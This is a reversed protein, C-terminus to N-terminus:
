FEIDDLLSTASSTGVTKELNDLEKAARKEEAAKMTSYVGDLICKTYVLSSLIGPMISLYSDVWAQDRNKPMKGGRLAAIRTRLVACASEIRKQMDLIAPLTVKLQPTKWVPKRKAKPAETGNVEAAEVAAEYEAYAELAKDYREYAALLKLTVDGAQKTLTATPAKAYLAHYQQVYVDNLHNHTNTIFQAPNVGDVPLNCLLQERQISAVKGGRGPLVWPTLLSTVVEGLTKMGFHNVIWDSTVAAEAPMTIGQSALHGDATHMIHCLVATAAEDTLSEVANEDMKVYRTGDVTVKKFALKGSKSVKQKGDAGINPHSEVHPVTVTALQVGVQTEEDTCVKDADTAAKYLVGDGGERYDVTGSGRPLPEREVEPAAVINTEEPLPADQTAMPVTIGCLAAELSTTQTASETTMEPNEAPAAQEQPTLPQVTPANPQVTPANPQAAARRSATLLALLQANPVAAPPAEAGLNLEIAM